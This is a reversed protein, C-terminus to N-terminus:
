RGEVPLDDIEGTTIAGAELDVLVVWPERMPVERVGDDSKVRLCLVTPYALVQEVVGFRKGSADIVDLGMLDREYVEDDDLPALASAPACLEAGRLADASDRDSALDLRVVLSNKPGPRRSLITAPRAVGGPPRVVITELTDWLESTPNYLVFRLEGRVGHARGVTGLVILEEPPEEGPARSAEPGHPSGGSSSSKSSRV